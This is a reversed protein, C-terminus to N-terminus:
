GRLRALLKSLKKQTKQVDKSLAKAKKQLDRSASKAMKSVEAAVKGADRATSEAAKGADRATREAAGIAGGIAEAAKTLGTKKAMHAEPPPEGVGRNLHSMKALFPMFLELTSSHCLSFVSPTVNKASLARISSSLKAISPFSRNTRPLNVDM